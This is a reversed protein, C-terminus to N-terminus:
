KIFSLVKLNKLEFLRDKKLKTSYYSNVNDIGIVKNKQLLKKYCSFRYFRCLWNSFYKKVM